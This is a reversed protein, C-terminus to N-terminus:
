SEELLLRANITPNGASSLAFAGMRGESGSRQEERRSLDSLDFGQANMCAIEGSDFFGRIDGTWTPNPVAPDNVTPDTM